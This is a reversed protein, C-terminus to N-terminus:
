RLCKKYFLLIEFDILLGKFKLFQTSHRLPCCNIQWGEARSVKNETVTFYLCHSIAFGTRIWEVCSHKKPVFYWKLCQGPYFSLYYGAWVRLSRVVQCTFYFMCVSSQLLFFIIITALHKPLILLASLSCLILCCETTLWSSNLWWLVHLPFPLTSCLDDCPCTFIWTVNSKVWSKLHRKPM